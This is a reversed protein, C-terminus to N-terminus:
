LSWIWEKLKPLKEELNGTQINYFYELKEVIGAPLDRHVHKLDYEAKDHWGYKRRLFVTVYQLILHWYYLAELPQDRRVNKVVKLAFQEYFNHLKDRKAGLDGKYEERDKFKIVEQKDFIVDVDDIGHVLYIKRSIGQTNFDIFLHEGMGKIHYTYAGLEGHPKSVHEYDIEGLKGLIAKIEDFITHVKDDNVSVWVDLDSYEDAFGQPLSGEVWLAYIYDKPELERKLHDIIRRHDNM